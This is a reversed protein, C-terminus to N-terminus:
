MSERPLEIGKWGRWMASGSSCAKTLREDLGKKVRCLERILASLVRDMRWIGLFGRLNDMQVARIKSREKKGYCQKVAMCLFLYLCHRMCSELVSLSCIGWWHSLIQYCM